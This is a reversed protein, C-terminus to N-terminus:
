GLPEQRAKRGEFVTVSEYGAARALDVAQDLDPRREDSDRLHMHYDVLV